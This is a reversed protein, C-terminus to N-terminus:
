ESTRRDWDELALEARWRAEELLVIALNIKPTPREHILRELLDQAAALQEVLEDHEHEDL